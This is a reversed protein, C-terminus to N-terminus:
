VDDDDDDNDDDDDDHGQLANPHPAKPLGQSGKPHGQSARIMIMIVMENIDNNGHDINDNNHPGWSLNGRGGWHRRPSGVM